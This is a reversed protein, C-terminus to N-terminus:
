AIFCQDLLFLTHNEKITAQWKSWEQEFLKVQEFQTFRETSNVFDTLKEIETQGVVNEQLKWM